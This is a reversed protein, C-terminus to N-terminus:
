PSQQVCRVGVGANAWSALKVCTALKCTKCKGLICTANSANAANAEMQRTQRMQGPHLNAALQLNAFKANAWSALRMQGPHLDCKGLICTANAQMQRMQQMRKSAKNDDLDIERRKREPPPPLVRVVDDFQHDAIRRKILAEIDAMAEETPEPPPKVTTDFDVDVELASNLPRHGADVEGRLHWEKEAMAEAELERVREQVRLQRKEHTSLNATDPGGSSGKKGAQGERGEGDSGSSGGEAGESLGGEDEDMDGQDEFGGAHVAFPADELDELDMPGRRHSSALGGRPVAGGDDSGWFARDGRGDDGFFDAYMADGASAGFLYSSWSGRKHMVCNGQSTCALRLTTSQGPYYVTGVKKAAKKKGKRSGSSMDEDFGQGEEDDSGFLLADEYEGIGKPHCCACAGEDMDGEEEDERGEEPDENQQKQRRRADQQEAD